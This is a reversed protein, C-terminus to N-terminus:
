LRGYGVFRGDRRFFLFFPYGGMKQEPRFPYVGPGGSTQSGAMMMRGDSAVGLYVMVHTVPPKRPPRYTHEWFLLDGPQLVRRLARSDGRAKRLKGRARLWEYQASATRPLEIGRVTRVLWRATNSCDMAWAGSEGPPRWAGSYRVGARDPLSIADTFRVGLGTATDASPRAIPVAPTLAVAPPALEVPAAPRVPVDREAPAPAFDDGPIILRLGPALTTAGLGNVTAVKEASVGYKDAVAALTEGRVVHHVVSPRQAQAVCAALVGAVAAMMMRTM